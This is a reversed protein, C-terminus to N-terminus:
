KVSASDDDDPNCCRKHRYSSYDTETHQVNLGVEGKGLLKLPLDDVAKVLSDADGNGNLGFHYMDHMLHFMRRDDFTIEKDRIYSQGLHRIKDLYMLKQAEMLIEINSTLLDIKGELEKNKTEEYKKFREVEESIEDTKDNKEEAKDELQAKRQQRIKWRENCANILAVGLGGGIIAGFFQIMESQLGTM